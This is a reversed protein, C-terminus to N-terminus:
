RSAHGSGRSSVRLFMVSYSPVFIYAPPRNLRPTPVSGILVSLGRCRADSNLCDSVAVVLVEVIADLEAMNADHEEEM